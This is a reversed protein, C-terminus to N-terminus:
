QDHDKLDGIAHGSDLAEWPLLLSAFRFPAQDSPISDYGRYMWSLKLITNLEAIIWKIVYYYILYKFLNLNGFYYKPVAVISISVTSWLAYIKESM